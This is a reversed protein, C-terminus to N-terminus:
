KNRKIEEGYLNMFGYHSIENPLNEKNIPVFNKFEEEFPIFKEAFFKRYELLLHHGKELLNIKKSQHISNINEFIRWNYGECNVRIPTEGLYSQIFVLTKGSCKIGDMKLLSINLDLISEELMEVSDERQIIKKNARIKKLMENEDHLLIAYWKNNINSLFSYGFSRNHIRGNKDLFVYNVDEFELVSSRSNKEIIGTLVAFNYKFLDDSFQCGCKIKDVLGDKSSNKEVGILVMYEKEPIARDSKEKPLVEPPATREIVETLVPM